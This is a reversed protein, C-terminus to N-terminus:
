NRCSWNIVDACQICRLRCMWPMGTNPVNKETPQLQSLALGAFFGLKTQKPNKKYKEVNGKRKGVHDMDTPSTTFGKKFLSIPEPYPLYIHQSVTTTHLYKLSAKM